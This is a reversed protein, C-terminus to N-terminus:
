VQNNIADIKEKLEKAHTKLSMQQKNYNQIMQELERVEADLQQVVPEEMRAEIEHGQIANSLQV